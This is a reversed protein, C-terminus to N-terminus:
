HLRPRAHEHGGPLEPGNRTALLVMREQGAHCGPLGAGYRKPYDQKSTGGSQKKVDLHGALSAVTGVAHADIAVDGKLTAKLESSRDESVILMAQETFQREIVVSQGLPMGQKVATNILDNKLRDVNAVRQITTGGASLYLSEQGGFSASLVASAEGLWEWGPVSADTGIEVATESSSSFDWPGGGLAPAPDLAFSVGYDEVHGQYQLQSGQVIGRQGVFIATGPWWNALWGKGLGFKAQWADRYLDALSM